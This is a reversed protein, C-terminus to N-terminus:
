REATNPRASFITPDVQFRLDFRTSRVVGLEDTTSALGSVEVGKVGEAHEWAVIQESAARVSPATAPLAMTGSVDATFSEYRVSPLTRSEILQFFPAWVRHQALLDRLATARAATARYARLDEEAVKARELLETRRAELAEVAVRTDRIRAELLFWSGGLLAATCVFGIVALAFVWSPSVRAAGGVGPILSIDRAM